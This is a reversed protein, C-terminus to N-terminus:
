RRSQCKPCSFTARGAQRSLRVLTGCLRCPEGARGYVQYTQQFYGPNGNGDVFDRLSSGGAAIARTLTDKVSVVLRACRPRTLRGAPLSPDLGALFLSENAYINGIGVVRHADMLFAKIPMPRDRTARFLYEPDFDGSLPEIGLRALLPHKDPEQSWLVAGFRRPDRFRLLPGRDLLLDLHDHKGPPVDPAVFRLSGSMGLHCLLAGQPLRFLLYKGRRQLALIPQGALLDGLHCSVPWRLRGDRIRVGSFRRGELHPALGRRVTEVEPLEPM